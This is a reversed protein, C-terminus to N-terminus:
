SERAAGTAEAWEDESFVGKGLLLQVLARVEPLDGTVPEDEKGRCRELMEAAEPWSEALGELIPTAEGFQAAKVLASAASFLSIEADTDRGEARLLQALEMEGRAAERYFPRALTEFGDLSLSRAKIIFASKMAKLHGIREARNDELASM